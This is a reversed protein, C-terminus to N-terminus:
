GIAIPRLPFWPGDGCSRPEGAEMRGQERWSAFAAGHPGGVVYLVGTGLNTAHASGRYTFFRYREPDLCLCHDIAARLVAAGVDHFVVLFDGAGEDLRHRVGEFDAITQENTHLGDLFVLGYTAPAPFRMAAETHQPSFGVHLRVDLGESEAVARTLEVGKINDAGENAADIVDVSSSPFVCALVLTSYGWANGVVFIRPPAALTSLAVFLEVDGPEISYGTELGGLRRADTGALAEDIRLGSEKFYMAKVQQEVAMVARRLACVDLSVDLPPPATEELADCEATLQDALHTRMEAAIVDVVCDQSGGCGVGQELGYRTPFSLAIADLDDGHGFALAKTEGNVDLFITVASCCRALGLLLSWASAARALRRRM